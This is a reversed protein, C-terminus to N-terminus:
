VEREGKVMRKGGKFGGEEDGKKNGEKSAREKDIRKTV